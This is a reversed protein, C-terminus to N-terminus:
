KPWPARSRSSGSAIVLGNKRMPGSHARQGSTIRAVNAVIMAECASIEPANERVTCAM